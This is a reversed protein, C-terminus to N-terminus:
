KFSNWISGENNCMKCKSLGTWNSKIEPIYNCHIFCSWIVKLAFSGTHINLSLLVLLNYIVKKEWALTIWYGKEETKEWKCENRYGVENESKEVKVEEKKWMEDRIAKQGAVGRWQGGGSRESEPVHHIHCPIASVQWECLIAVLFVWLQHDNNEVLVSLPLLYAERHSSADQENAFTYWIGTVSNSDM